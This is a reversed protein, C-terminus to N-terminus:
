LWRPVQRCYEAYQKGFQKKLSPEEVIRIFLNFVLAVALWYGALTASSFWLAWGAIMALVGVYMPNRTRRYLRGT